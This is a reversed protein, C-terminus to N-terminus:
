EEKKCQIYLVRGGVLFLILGCLSLLIQPLMGPIPSGALIMGALVFSLAFVKIFFGKM